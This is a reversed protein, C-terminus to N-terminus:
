FIMLTSALIRIAMIQDDRRRGYQLCIGEWGEEKIPSTVTQFICAQMSLAKDGKQKIRNKLIIFRRGYM